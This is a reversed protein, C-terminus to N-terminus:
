RTREGIVLVLDSGAPLVIKNIEIENHNKGVSRIKSWQETEPNYVDGEVAIVPTEKFAVYASRTSDSPNYMYIYTQKGCRLGMIKVGPPAKTISVKEFSGNGAKLMLDSVMRVKKIYKDTGRDDFFEWWWSLPLIPTSSFLGYWLGRKFDGNMSDSFLNFNKSWDWEYSYEGIVYPKNYETEYKEIEVPISMTARYIHKQNIDINALANLGKIDRHSISTTVIHHYLDIQKLYTSMEHHWQTIDDANVPNNKDSFQVNDAENIFEWAGIAPSYGWRAVFYRLRNKYAARSQPNVFFDAESAANGGDRILFAGLGLTLMMHLNLSDCLEVLRDMRTIASPNYYEGSVTYRNNNFGQKWDIPLNFQSVWTRFFNGGHAALSPLMYEYNYKPKEHLEKFYKSDDNTRSEWGINEGIGRFPKGSDFVLTWNNKQHLIGDSTSGEALFFGAASSDTVNKGGSLVFRYVYKGKEAPSFRAKWHSLTGSLGSEYYCPLLISKGSPSTIHMDLYVDEQLYPNAWSATLQINWEVREYQRPLKTLLVFRGIQANVFHSVVFSAGLLFSFKKM